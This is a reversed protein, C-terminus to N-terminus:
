RAHLSTLAAKVAADFFDAVYSAQDHAAVIKHAPALAALFQYTHWHGMAPLLPLRPIPPEPYITTYFHPEDCYHDGPSFGIGMSRGRGLEVLCDLDFHHPWARVPPPKPRHTVLKARVRELADNANAFWAALAAFPEALEDLSYRAGLAIVHWPMAYPAPADLAGADLGRAALRDGLWRRAEVDARGDLPLSELFGDGRVELALDVVRLSLRIGGSLTPTALAGLADDWSLSAHEGTQGAPGYARTARALWQAAYHAQLRADHLKRFDTRPATRWKFSM